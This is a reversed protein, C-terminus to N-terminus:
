SILNQEKLWDLIIVVVASCRDKDANTLWVLEAIEADPQLTGDYDGSYCTMEVMVGEPKGHAQAEFTGVYQITDPILKVTLEESIERILAQQDSEGSERKGGPLYYADKGKSRAGLVSQEKIHIWALKDINSVFGRSSTSM